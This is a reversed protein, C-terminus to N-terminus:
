TSQTFRHSNMMGSHITFSKVGLVGAQVLEDLQDLNNPVVGGWFGCDIWLKGELAELKQRLADATTTVPSCNLPMDVVTTIGGAAAAQTATNFGEWETRGPENIHVHTDVLGPLLNLTGLDKTEISEGLKADFPLIELIKGNEIVVTAAKMEGDLLVKPSRIAFKTM